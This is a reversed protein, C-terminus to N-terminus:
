SRNIRENLYKGAKFHVMQKADVPVAEGSRPNRGTRAERARVSFAGFGRLEVRGGNHLQEVIDRFFIDVISEVEAHRLNPNDQALKDILESRVMKRGKITAMDMQKLRDLKM